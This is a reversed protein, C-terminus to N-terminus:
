VPWTLAWDRLLRHVFPSGMLPEHQALTLTRVRQSVPSTAEKHKQEAIKLNSKYTDNEPDLVLAKKFYSIADPYKSMATLALSSGCSHLKYPNHLPDCCLKQVLREKIQSVGDTRLSQQIHPRDRHSEWLWLDGRHLKGTQQTSCGQVLWMILLTWVCLSCSIIIDRSVIFDVTIGVCIHLM